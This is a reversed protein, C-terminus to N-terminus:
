REKRVGDKRALLTERRELERRDAPPKVISLSLGEQPCAATSSSSAKMRFIDGMDVKEEDDEDESDDSNEENLSPVLAKVLNIVGIVSRDHSMLELFKDQDFEVDYEQLSMHIKLILMKTEVKSFVGDNNSDSSVVIRLIDQVIRQRLNNKMEAMIFTNEKVLSVLKEVNYNQEVAIEKLDEEVGAVRDAEPELIYIEESLINVEEELYNADERLKNNLSRLAPLKIIQYEKLASYPVNAVLVGGMVFVATVPTIIMAGASVVVGIGLSVTVVGTKLKQMKTRKVKVSISSAGTSNSYQSSEDSSSSSSSSDDEDIISLLPELMGEAKKSM